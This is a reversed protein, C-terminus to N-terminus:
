WHHSSHGPPRSREARGKYISYNQALDDSRPLRRPEARDGTFGMTPEWEESSTSPAHVHIQPVTLSQYQQLPIDAYYTPRDRSRGRTEEPPSTM